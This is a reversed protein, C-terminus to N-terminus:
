SNIHQRSPPTFGFSNVSAFEPDVLTASVSTFTKMYDGRVILVPLPLALKLILLILILLVLLCLGVNNRLLSTARELIVKLFNLSHFQVGTISNSTPLILNVAKISLPALWEKIAVSFILTAIFLVLVLFTLFM